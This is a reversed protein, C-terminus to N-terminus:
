SNGVIGAWDVGKARKSHAGALACFNAGIALFVTEPAASLAWFSWIWFFSMKTLPFNSKQFKMKSCLGDNGSSGSALYVEFTVGLSCGEGSNSRCVGFIKLNQNHNNENFSFPM